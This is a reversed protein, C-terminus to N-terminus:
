RGLIGALGEQGKEKREGNGETRDIKCTPRVDSTMYSTLDHREEACLGRFRRVASLLLKCGCIARQGEMIQM